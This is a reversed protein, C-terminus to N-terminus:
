NAFRTRMRVMSRSHASNEQSRTERLPRKRLNTSATSTCTTRSAHGSRCSRWRRRRISAIRPWTGTPRGNEAASPSWARASRHPHCSRAVARRTAAAAGTARVLPRIGAFVSLVDDRTPAKALYQAPPRRPHIRNGSGHRGARANRKRHAHRHNRGAHPRAVSDRILVRGDSTHPVMVASEGQLFSSDFVLHIGQSPVIMPSLAPEAKLRLRDSFAGTANVVVKATARFENGTEVDRACVGNLLDRLM